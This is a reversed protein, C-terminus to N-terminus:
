KNGWTFHLHAPYDLTSYPLHPTSIWFDMWANVDSGNSHNCKTKSILDIKYSSDAGPGLTPESMSYGLYEFYATSGGAWKQLCSATIDVHITYKTGHNTKEIYDTTYSIDEGGRTSITTTDGSAIILFTGDKYSISLTKGEYASRVSEMDKASACYVVWLDQPTLTINANVSQLSQFQPMEAIIPLNSMMEQYETYSIIVNTSDVITVDCIDLGNYAASTSAGAPVVLLSSLLTICLLFSILRRKM